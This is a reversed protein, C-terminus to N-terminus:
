VSTPLIALAFCSCYGQGRSMKLVSFVFSQKVLDPDLIENLIADNDILAVRQSFRCTSFSEQPLFVHKLFVLKM